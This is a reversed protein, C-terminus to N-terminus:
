SSLGVLGMARSRAWDSGAYFDFLWLLERILVLARKADSRSVIEGRHVANNRRSVAKKLEDMNPKTPQRIKGDFMQRVPLLPLYSEVLTALPPSPMHLALWKADPVLEAILEKFGVEGAAVGMLLASRPGEDLLAWAERWLEHSLPEGRFEGIEKRLNAILAPGIDLLSNDILEVHSDQPLLCWSGDGVRWRCREFLVRFPRRFRTSAERWRVYEVLLDLAEDIKSEIASFSNRVNEPLIARPLLWKGIDDGPRLSHDFTRWESSGIPVKGSELQTLREAVNENIQGRGEASVIVTQPDFRKESEPNARRLGLEIGKVSLDFSERLILENCSYIKVVTLMEKNAVIM